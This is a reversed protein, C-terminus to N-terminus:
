IDLVAVDGVLHGVVDEVRWVRCGRALKLAWEWGMYRTLLVGFSPDAETSKTKLMISGRLVRDRLFM